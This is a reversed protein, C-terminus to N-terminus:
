LRLLRRAEDMLPNEFASRYADAPRTEIWELPEAAAESRSDAAV